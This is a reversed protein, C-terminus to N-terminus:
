YYGNNWSLWAKEVGSFGPRRQETEDHQRLHEQISVLEDAVPATVSPSRWLEAKWGCRGCVFYGIYVAPQAPRPMNQEWMQQYLRDIRSAM